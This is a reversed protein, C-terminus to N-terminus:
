AAIPLAAQVKLLARLIDTQTLLAVTMVFRTMVQRATLKTLLYNIEWVSLSTAPSPAVTRLDRDSLMGVLREDELVPLHRIAHKQMLHRAASIPTDPTITVPATTMVDKVHM